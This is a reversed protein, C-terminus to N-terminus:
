FEEGSIDEGAAITGLAGWVGYPSLVNAKMQEVTPTAVSLDGADIDKDISHSSGDAFVSCITTPHPSGASYLGNAGSEGGVSASVSGPPLITNFLSPGAAGDSCRGGRRLNSTPLEEITSGSPELLDMLEKPNELLEPPVDITYRSLEAGSSSGIEALLITNSMGDTIDELTTKSQKGFVGRTPGPQHLNRAQDGVSFAYHTVGFSSDSSRPAQSPCELFPLQTQWPRYDNLWPAPMAPFSEGDFVSPQSIQNYMAAQEVFPLLSVFGSIRGSQDQAEGGMAAPFRMHASEYNLNALALQRLNNLCVIRRAPTRVTRIAPFLMGLLIGIIAIVVM